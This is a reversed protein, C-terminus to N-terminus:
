TPIKDLYRDFKWLGVILYFGVFSLGFAIAMIKVLSASDPEKFVTFGDVLEFDPQLYLKKDIELIEANLTLDEKFVNLPDTLYKDGLIVNNSGRSQSAIQAFNLYIVAKLSDLKKSEKALKAKRELLNKKTSEIRKKIFDNSRFYEILSVELGKVIEPDYVKVSIQFSHKNEIELKETIKTVLDKKEQAVNALQEKLVEMEIVDTESVFPLVEFDVINKAVAKDIKLETALGEREREFCLLALKDITNEVIRRNLYESNLIMTTKYFKKKLIESYGAAIIQGILVISVFLIKNNLAIRRLSALFHLIGRGIGSFFNGIAAFLQRLDIEDNSNQPQAPKTNEM